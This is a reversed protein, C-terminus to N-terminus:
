DWKTGDTSTQVAARVSVTAPSGTTSYTFECLAGPWYWSTTTGNVDASDVAALASRAALAIADQSLRILAQDGSMPTAAIALAAILVSAAIIQPRM